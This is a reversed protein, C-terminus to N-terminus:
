GQTKLREARRQRLMEVATDGDMLEGREAQAFGEAIRAGVAERQEVLWDERHLQERIIEFAQDLVEGPDHYAGSQIAQDIMRQHEPKLEITM